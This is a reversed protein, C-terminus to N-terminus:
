KFNNKQEFNEKQHIIFFLFFWVYIVFFYSFIITDFFSSLFISIILTFSFINKYQYTIFKKLTFFLLYLIFFFRFIISSIGENIISTLYYNEFIKAKSLLEVRNKIVKENNLSEFYKDPSLLIASYNIRLDILISREEISLYEQQWIINILKSIEISNIENKSTLLKAFDANNIKIKQLLINDLFSM